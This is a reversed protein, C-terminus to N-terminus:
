HFTREGMAICMRKARLYSPIDKIKFGADALASQVDCFTPNTRGGIECYQRTGRGIETLDLIHYINLDCYFSM